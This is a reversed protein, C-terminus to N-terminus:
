LHCAFYLSDFKALTLNLRECPNIQVPKVANRWSSSERNVSVCMNAARCKFCKLFSTHFSEHQRDSTHWKCCAAFTIVTKWKGTHPQVLALYDQEHTKATKPFHKDKLPVQKQMSILEAHSEANKKCNHSKQVFTLITFCLGPILSIYICFKLCLRATRHYLMANAGGLNHTRNGPFVCVSLFHIAQIYQLDSQIFADALHM